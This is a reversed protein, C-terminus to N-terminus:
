LICGVSVYDILSRLASYAMSFGKKRAVIPSNSNGYGWVWCDIHEWYAIYGNDGVEFVDKGEALQQDVYIKLEQFAQDKDTILM